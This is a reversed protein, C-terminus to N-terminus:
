RSSNVLGWDPAFIQSFQVKVWLVSCETLLDHRLYNRTKKSMQWHKLNNVECVKMRANILVVSTDFVRMATVGSDFWEVKNMIRAAVSKGLNNLYTRLQSSELEKNSFREWVEPGGELRQTVSKFLDSKNIGRMM